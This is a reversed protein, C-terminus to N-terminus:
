RRAKARGAVKAAARWAGLKARDVAPRSGPASPTLGVKRLRGNFGHLVGVDRSGSTTWTVSLSISPEPGSRVVHPAHLPVFVGDGPEMAFPRAEGPMSELNRHAGSYYRDLLHAEVDRSPYHGITMEKSGRVQLLFNYEPDLHVPTVSNPASIFIFGERGFIPGEHREIAVTVESLTSELLQRYDPHEEIRKLVMWSRNSEITRVIEGPNLDLRPAEGSPLVEPIDGLNHEVNAEPLFDALEAIADLTLLPHDMLEHKVTFPEDGLGSALKDPAIKLKSTTHQNTTM